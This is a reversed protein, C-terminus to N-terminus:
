YTWFVNDTEADEWIDEEEFVNKRRVLNMGTSGGGIPIMLEALSITAVIEAQPKVYKRATEIVKMDANITRRNHLSVVKQLLKCSKGHRKHLTQIGRVTLSFAGEVLSSAKQISFM